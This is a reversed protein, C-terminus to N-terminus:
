KSLVEVGNQFKFFDDSDAVERKCLSCFHMNVDYGAQLLEVGDGFSCVRYGVYEDREKHSDEPNIWENKENFPM